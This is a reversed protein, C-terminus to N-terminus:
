KPNSYAMIGGSTLQIRTIVKNRGAGIFCKAPLTQGSFGRTTLVDVGDVELAAIVADKEVVIAYVELDTHNSADEIYVGGDIGGHVNNLAVSMSHFLTSLRQLFDM